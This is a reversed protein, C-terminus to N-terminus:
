LFWYYTILIQELHLFQDQILNISKNNAKLDDIIAHVTTNMLIFVIFQKELQFFGGNFYFSSILIPIMIMFAWSFSHFLLCVIYDYQYKKDATREQWWSKQKMDILRGQLHFDDIIHLFIMMILIM